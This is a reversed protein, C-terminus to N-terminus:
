HVVTPIVKDCFWKADRVMYDVSQRFSGYTLFAAFATAVVVKAKDKVGGPELDISVRIEPGFREHAASVAQEQTFGRILERVDSSYDVEWFHIYAEALLGAELYDAM